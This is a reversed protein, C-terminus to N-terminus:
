EVIGAQWQTVVEVIAEQRVVIFASLNAIEVFLIAEDAKEADSIVVTAFPGAVGGPYLDDFKRFYSDLFMAAQESLAELRAADGSQDTVEEGEIRLWAIANRGLKKLFNGLLKPPDIEVEQREAIQWVRALMVSPVGVDSGFDVGALRKSQISVAGADKFGLLLANKLREVGEEEADVFPAEALDSLDLKEIQSVPSLLAQVRRNAVALHFKLGTETGFVLRRPLITEDIEKVLAALLAEPSDGKLRRREGSARERQSLKALVEQLRSFDSM